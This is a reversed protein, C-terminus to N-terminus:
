KFKGARDAAKFEEYTGIWEGKADVKLGTIANGGKLPSIPAPARSIEVVKAAEASKAAPKAPGGVNARVSGLEILMDGITMKGLAAAENPNKAYHYLVKPGAKGMKLIADRANDSLRVESANITEAYDQIESVVAEVSEKWTKATTEAQVKADAEARKTADERRTADATWKKLDTRFKDMEDAAYDKPDPEPGQELPPAPEYKARLDAAQKEAAERAEKATKAEAAAASVASAADAKAKETAQHIRYEFSNKKVWQGKHYVNAGELDGEKPAAALDAAAKKEAEVRALEARGEAEPDAEANTEPEAAPTVGLKDNVFDHFNDPSVVVADARGEKPTTDISPAAVTVESM